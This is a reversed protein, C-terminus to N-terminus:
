GVTEARVVPGSPVAAPINETATTTMCGNGLYVGGSATEHPLRGPRSRLGCVPLSDPLEELGRKKQLFHVALSLLQEDNEAKLSRNEHDLVRLNPGLFARLYVM